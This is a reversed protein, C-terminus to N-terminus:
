LRKAVERALRHYLEFAREGQYDRPWLSEPLIPDERMVHQYGSLAEAALVPLQNVPVSNSRVREINERCIECFWGQMEELKEMDWARQVIDEAGRGLVTRSEMLFSFSDVAAAECLDEYQPRIDHPSVWVSKQLGGMRMRKLFGRLAERYTKESEPVDYVLVWWIGSWRKKWPRRSRCFEPLREQGKDTLVLVANRGGGRRYAIVGAKRLRSVASYYAQRSPFSYDWTLSRGRTVLVDGLMGLMQLFYEGARRRVVPFSIDPHHFRRFRAKM